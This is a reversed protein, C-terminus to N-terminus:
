MLRKSVTRYLVDKKKQGGAMGQPFSADKMFFHTIVCAPFLPIFQVLRHFCQFPGQLCPEIRINVLTVETVDFTLNCGRNGAPWVLCEFYFHLFRRKECISIVNRVWHFSLPHLSYQELSNLFSFIPLTRKSGVCETM